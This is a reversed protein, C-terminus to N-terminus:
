NTNESKPPRLVHSSKMSYTFILKWMFGIGEGILIYFVDDVSDKWLIYKSIIFHIKRDM